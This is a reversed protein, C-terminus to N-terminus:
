WIWQNSLWRVPRSFLLWGISKWGAAIRAQAEMGPRLKLDPDDIVVDAIFYASGGEVFARPEIRSIRGPFSSLGSADSRISVHDGVHIEGLDSAELHVEATMSELDAIEFLDQGITVPSGISKHWDGTVVIGDSASRVELRQLKDQLSAILTEAKLIESKAIGIEGSSKIALASSFKRMARELDANASALERQVEEQDLNALLQGQSVRDGPRVFCESIRGAVPSTIFQRKEPEIQCERSPRYPVPLLLLAIVSGIAIAITKPQLIAWDVKRVFQMFPKCRKLVLWADLDRVLQQYAPNLSTPSSVVLERELVDRGISTDLILVAYGGSNPFRWPVAMLPTQLAKSLENINVCFAKTPADSSAGKDGSKSNENCEEEIASTAVLVDPKLAMRRSLSAMTEKHVALSSLQWGSSQTALVKGTPDCVLLCVPTKLEKGLFRVASKILDNSFIDHDFDAARKPEDLSTPNPASEATSLPSLNPVKISDTKADVDPREMSPSVIPTSAQTERLTQEENIVVDQLADDVTDLLEAIQAKLVPVETKTGRDVAINHDVSPDIAQGCAKQSSRLPSASKGGALRSLSSETLSGRLVPVENRAGNKAATAPVGGAMKNLANVPKDPSLQRPKSLTECTSNLKKSPSSEPPKKRGIEAGGIEVGKLVPVEKSTPLRETSVFKKAPLEGDTPNPLNALDSPSNSLSNSPTKLVPKEQETKVAAMRLLSSSRKTDDGSAPDLSESRKPAPVLKRVDRNNKDGHLKNIKLEASDQTALMPAEMRLDNVDSNSIVEETSALLAQPSQKSTSAPTNRCCDSTPLQDSYSPVTANGEDFLKEIRSLEEVIQSASLRTLRSGGDSQGPQPVVSQLESAPGVVDKIPQSVGFDNKM